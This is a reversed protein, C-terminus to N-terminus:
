DIAMGGLTNQSAHSNFLIMNKFFAANKAFTLHERRECFDSHCGPLPSEPFGQVGNCLAVPGTIGFGPLAPLFILLISLLPSLRRRKM